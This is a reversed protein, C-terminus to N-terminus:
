AAIPTARACAEFAARLRDEELARGIAVVRPQEEDGAAFAAMSARGGAVDFRMWGAGARAIGKLREVRGFGGECVANLM